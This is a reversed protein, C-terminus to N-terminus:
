YDCGDDEEEAGWEADMLACISCGDECWKRVGRQLATCLTHLAATDGNPPVDASRRHEKNGGDAEWVCDHLHLSARPLAARVRATLTEVSDGLLVYSPVTLTANEVVIVRLSLPLQLLRSVDVVGLGEEIMHREKYGMLLTRLCPMADHRSFPPLVPTDFGGEQTYIDDSQDVDIYRKAARLDLM